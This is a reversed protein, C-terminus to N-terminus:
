GHGIAGLGRNFFSNAVILAYDNQRKDSLDFVRTPMKYEKFDSVKEQYTKFVNEFHEKTIAGPISSIWCDDMRNRMYEDRNMQRAAQLM